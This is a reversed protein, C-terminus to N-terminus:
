LSKLLSLIQQMLPEKSFDHHFITYLYMM